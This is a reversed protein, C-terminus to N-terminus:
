AWSRRVFTTAHVSKWRSSVLYTGFCELDDSLQELSGRLCPSPTANSGSPFASFDAVDKVAPMRVLFVFTRRPFQRVSVVQMDSSRCYEFRHDLHTFASLLVELLPVPM